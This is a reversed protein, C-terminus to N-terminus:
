APPAPQGLQCTAPAAPSCPASCPILLAPVAPSCARVMGGQYYLGERFYWTRTSWFSHAKQSLFPALRREYLEEFRPHKGARRLARRALAPLPSASAPDTCACPAAALDLARHQEFCALAAPQAGAQGRAGLQWGGEGFVQWYDEYGLQRAAVAKLELLASQAPNCDM